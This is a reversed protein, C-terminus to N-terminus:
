KYLWKKLQQPTFSGRAFAIGLAAADLANHDSIGPFKQQLNKTYMEKKANAFGPIIADKWDFTPVVYVPIGHLSGANYTAAYGALFGAGFGLTLLSQRSSTARAQQGEVVICDLMGWQLARADPLGGSFTGAIFPGHESTRMKPGYEVVAYGRGADNTKGAPDIALLRM